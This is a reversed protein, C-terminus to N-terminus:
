DGATEGRAEHQDLRELVDGRASKLSITNAGARISENPARGILAILLEARDSNSNILTVADAISAGEEETIEVSRALALLVSARGSNTSIAPIARLIADVPARDVLERLV